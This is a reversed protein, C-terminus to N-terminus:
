KSVIRLESYVNGCYFRMPLSNYACDQLPSLPERAMTIEVYHGVNVLAKGGASLQSSRFYGELFLFKVRTM